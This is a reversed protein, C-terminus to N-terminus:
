PILILTKIVNSTTTINTDPQGGGMSIELPGTAGAPIKIPFRVERTEGAKLHIRRFSALARLPQRPINATAKSSTYVQIVEDGDL